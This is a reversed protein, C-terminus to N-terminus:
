GLINLLKREIGGKLYWNKYIPDVAGSWPSAPVVGPPSTLQRVACPLAAERVAINAV